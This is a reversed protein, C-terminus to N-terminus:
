SLRQSPTAKQSSGSTKMSTCQLPRLLYGWVFRVGFVWLFKLNAIYDDNFSNEEGWGGLKVNKWTDHQTCGLLCQGSHKHNRLKYNLLIWFVIIATKISDSETTKWLIGSCIGGNWIAICWSLFDERKWCIIINTVAISQFQERM